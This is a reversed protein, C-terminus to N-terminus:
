KKTKRTSKKKKTKDAIGFEKEVIKLCEEYTLEEPM